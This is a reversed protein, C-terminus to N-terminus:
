VCSPFRLVMDQFTPKSPAPIPVGLKAMIKSKLSVSDKPKEDVIALSDRYPLAQLRQIVEGALTRSQLHAVQNNILSKQTLISPINFLQKQMDGTDRISLTASAEYVPKSTFTMYAVTSVVSVFCLLVVFWNRRIPRTLTNLDLIRLTNTNNDM